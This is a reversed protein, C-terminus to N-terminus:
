LRVIFKYFVEKLSRQSNYRKSLSTHKFNVEGKPQKEWYKHTFPLRDTNKLEEQIGSKNM